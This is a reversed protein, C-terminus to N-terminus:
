TRDYRILQWIATVIGLTIMVDPLNITSLSGLSWYDAVGGRLMLRDVLNSTGGGVVLGLALSWVLGYGRYHYYLWTVLVLFMITLIYIMATPAALSFALSYNITAQSFFIWRTLQGIALALGAALWFTALTSSRTTMM